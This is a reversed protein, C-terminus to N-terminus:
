KLRSCSNWIHDLATFIGYKGFWLGWEKNFDLQRRLTPHLTLFGPMPRWVCGKDEKSCSHFDIKELVKMEPNWPGLGYFPQSAMSRTLSSSCWPPTPPRAAGLHWSPKPDPCLGHHPSYVTGAIEKTNSVSFWSNKLAIRMMERSNRQLAWLLYVSEPGNQFLGHWACPRVTLM